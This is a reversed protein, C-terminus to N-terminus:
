EKIKSNKKILIPILLVIGISVLVFISSNDVGDKQISKLTMGTSIHIFNPPILGFLTSIIFTKVPIGIISSVINIM